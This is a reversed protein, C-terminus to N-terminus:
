SLERVFGHLLVGPVPSFDRSPLRTFGHRRYLRHAAAMTSTSCMVVRSVGLDAARDLVARLLQEGIGRGHHAPDVALMRFELEGPESVEAFETGPLVVTVTGLLRGEEDAAVLLEAARARAAANRLTTGYDSGEPIFGGAQYAAVTLEGVADLEAPEAPRVRIETAM